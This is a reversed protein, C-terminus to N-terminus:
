LGKFAKEIRSLTPQCKKYFDEKPLGYDVAIVENQSLQFLIKDESAAMSFYPSSLNSKQKLSQFSNEWKRALDKNSQIIEIPMDEKPEPPRYPTTHNKQVNAFWTLLSKRYNLRSNSLAWEVCRQIEKQVHVAPYAEQWAKLDESSIGEFCRNQANLCVPSATPPRKKQTKVKPPDKQPPSAEQKQFEKEKNIKKKNKTEGDKTLICKETYPKTSVTEIIVSEEEIIQLDCKPTKQVKKYAFKSRKKAERFAKIKANIEEQFISMEHITYDVSTYKGEETKVQDTRTIYGFEIGERIVQYLASRGYGLEDSLHKMNFHWDDPLSLCYTLVGRLRVSILPNKLLDNSISTYKRNLKEARLIPM